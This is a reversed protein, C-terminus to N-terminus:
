RASKPVGGGRFGPHSHVSSSAANCADNSSPAEWKPIPLLNKRGSNLIPRTWMTGNFLDRSPVQMHWLPPHPMTSTILAALTLFATHRRRHRNPHTPTHTHTHTHTHTNTTHHYSPPVAARFPGHRIKRKYAMRESRELESQLSCGVVVVVVVVVTHLHFCLLEAPQVVCVGGM